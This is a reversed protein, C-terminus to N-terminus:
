ALEVIEDPRFVIVGRQAFVSPRIDHDAELVPEIGEDWDGWKELVEGAALGFIKFKPPHGWQFIDAQGQLTIGALEHPSAFSLTVRNNENLNIKTKQAFLDPLLVLDDGVVDTFPIPLLNGRGQLSSTNLYVICNEKSKAKLAQKIKDPLKM